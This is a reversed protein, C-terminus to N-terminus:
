PKDSPWESLTERDPEGADRYRNLFESIMGNVALLETNLDSTMEGRKWMEILQSQRTSLEVFRERWTLQRGTM